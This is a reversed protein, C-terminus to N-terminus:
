LNEEGFLTEIRRIETAKGRDSRRKRKSAEGVWGLGVWDRSGVRGDRRTRRIWLVTLFGRDCAGDM